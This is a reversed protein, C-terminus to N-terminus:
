LCALDWIGLRLPKDDTPTRTGAPLFMKEVAELGARPVVCGEIWNTGLAREAPVFCGPLSVSCEGIDLSSASFVDVNMDGERYATM